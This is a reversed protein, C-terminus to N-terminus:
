NAKCLKKMLFIEWRWRCIFIKYAKIFHALGDYANVNDDSVSEVMKQANILTTYGGFGSRGFVNYQYDEMSEGWAMQKALLEDYIFSKSASSSTIDLLLGTALLSSTVKTTADPDTNIEDFKDCSALLATALLLSIYKNIRKM